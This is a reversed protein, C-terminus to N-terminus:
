CRSSATTGPPACRSTSMATPKSTRFTCKPSPTRCCVSSRQNGTEHRSVKDLVPMASEITLLNILEENISSQTIVDYMVVPITIDDDDSTEEVVIELVFEKGVLSTLHESDVSAEYLEELGDLRCVFAQAQELAFERRLVYVNGTPVHVEEGYDILFCDVFGDQHISSARVRIWSGEHLIVYCSGFNISKPVLESKHEQYFLEM